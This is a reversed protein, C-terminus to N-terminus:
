LSEVDIPIRGWFSVLAQGTIGPTRSPIDSPIAVTTTSCRTARPSRGHCSTSGATPLRLQKRARLAGHDFDRRGVPQHHDRLLRVPRLELLENLCNPAALELVLSTSRRM